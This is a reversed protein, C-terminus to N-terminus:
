ADLVGLEEPTDVDVPMAADVIVVACHSGLGELLTRAGRDGRLEGLAGFQTRDFLVPHGRGDRYQPVVASASTTRWRECLARVVVPSVLPQDALAIVVADVDVPLASLGARISSAMGEDRGAHEVLMVPIGELAAVRGSSEPPVVVYLVDVESAIARASWSLVPHGRLPALLKDGGFRSSRGAALLLGAIM